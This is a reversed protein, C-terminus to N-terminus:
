LSLWCCVAVLALSMRQIINFSQYKKGDEADVLRVGIDGEVYILCRCLMLDAYSGWM